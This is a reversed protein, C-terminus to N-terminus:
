AQKLLKLYNDYRWQAIEGDSLASLVACNPEVVHTCNGFRCQAGLRSIELYGHRVDRAELHTVLFQRVGPSDVIASQGAREYWHTVSTTHSGLGSSESLAGVRVDLDPLLCQVISSKGVGSAGVLAVAKGELVKFLPDMAGDRKTSVMVTDYGIRQYVKCWDLVQQKDAEALLDVKNIVIIPEIGSETCAICFQDTLLLDFGPPEACVIALHSLNAALPKPVGRRDPRSLVTERPRLATIRRAGADDTELRVLDGAVLLPLKSLPSAQLPPGGASDQVAM